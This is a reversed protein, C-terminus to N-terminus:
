RSTRAPFCGQAPIFLAAPYFHRRSLLSRRAPATQLPPCGPLRPDFARTSLFLRPRFQFLRECSARPSRFSRTRSQFSIFQIAKQRRVRAKWAHGRQFKQTSIGRHRPIVREILNSCDEVKSVPVNSQRQFWTSIELESRKTSEETTSM